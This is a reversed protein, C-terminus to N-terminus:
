QLTRRLTRRLTRQPPRQCHDEQEEAARHCVRDGCCVDIEVVRDPRDEGVAAERAVTGIGRCSLASQPEISPFIRQCWPGVTGGDYRTIWGGTQDELPQMEIIRLLAHRGGGRFQFDAALLDGRDFSPDGFSGVVLLVPGEEGRDCRRDGLHLVRLPRGSGDVMEDQRLEFRLPEPRRSRCLPLRQCSTRGEDQCSHCRIEICEVAVEGVSRGVGPGVPDIEQQRGGGEAFLHRTMPEIHGAIGVTVTVLGINVARGPRPSVPDDLCEVVVQGMILEDGPLNGPIQQFICGLLLDKRGGELPKVALGVLSSADLLLKAGLINGIAGLGKGACKETQGELTGATVVVLEVGQLLLLEVGERREEVVDILTAQVGM